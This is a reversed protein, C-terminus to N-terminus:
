TRMFGLETETRFHRFDTQRFNPLALFEQPCPSSAGRAVRVFEVDDYVKMVEAIEKIFRGFNVRANKSPYGNMGAYLGSTNGPGYGLDFAWFYVRKHGDFAALYLATAGANLQPDFPILHFKNEFRLMNSAGTLVINGDAYGDTVIKDAVFRNKVVLFHPKVDLYAYNCGYVTLPHTGGHKTFVHYGTIWKKYDARTYGNGVVLAYGSHSMAITNPLWQKEDVRVGNVRDSNVVINEGRYDERLLKQM